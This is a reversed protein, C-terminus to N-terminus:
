RSSRFYEDRDISRLRIEKLQAGQLVRLPIEVGAAGSAWVRRYFDALTTVPQDGVGVVLDGAQIGARAAPGGSSVRSVFLHGMFEDANVGLWPRAAGRRRGDNVLDELIPKLLDIPVFMNGPLQTGRNAADGVILSGIGLLEGRPSILAAGSWNPVAPATFIASDLMYEWNGTFRRRSVVQVIQASERGAHTLIMAQHQEALAAADGLPLPRARLPADLRLLSFGTPHDYGALRAAVPGADRTTVEISEAESVLYGITLVYRERILVGSGQREAGLTAASRAGPPVRANVRVVASLTEEVTDRAREQARGPTAVALTALLLALLAIPRVRVPHCAQM